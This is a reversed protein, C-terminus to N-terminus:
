LGTRPTSWLRLTVRVSGEGHSIVLEHGRPFHRALRERLNELGIGLSSVTKKADPEIWEGTNEVELILAGDGDRRVGLSVGVRDPSTVRGYKLANELLPLILFHPLHEDELEPDCVIKVELLDGWRSQEIELYARLLKMEGGLTTWDRQEPRYLTLRCFDALREVMTRATTRGAPLAASISALTNFLFHPNLQYRLVELRAKEEALRATIKEDLELQNLRVLEHNQQDLEELNEQLQHTREVVVAELQKNYRRLARMRIQMVGVMVGLSLVSYGIIAWSTAWWESQVVFGLTAPATIIGDADRARVEFRYDGASLNAYIREREPSWSTWSPEFGILRTQYEVVNAFQHRLALFEFKLPPPNPSFREGKKVDKAYLQLRLPVPPPFARAVELRVLGKEGSIWLVIGTPDSEERLSTVAGTAAGILHPLRRSGSGDASVYEIGDERAVWRGGNAAGCEALDRTSNQDNGESIFHGPRAAGDIIGVRYRQGAATVIQLSGDKEERLSIVSQDFGPLLGEDIWGEPTSRLSSIGKTTAVWVREPDLRSHTLIGGGPPVKAISRFAGSEFIQIAEYGVTLLGRDHSMISYTPRSFLRNFRAVQGTEDIPSLRYIGETTAAFLVGGHRVTAVVEGQGLGNDGDFLTAASPWELRFLGTETGLWLGGERDTFFARVTKVYLGLSNDIPGIYHGRADFRMGGDGTPASFAVVLSDDVLRQACIIRRGELWRNAEIELPIIRGSNMRFFGQEATLFELTGDQRGEVMMIVNDRLVPDDMVVEVRDGTMRGLPHDLASVYVEDGVRHFRAGRSHLPTAFPVVIMREDRWILIHNETSFYVDESVALVDYIDEFDPDDSPLHSALSVFEKEGGSSRIWGIVGAGGAYITGSTTVAFKRIGASEDPLPVLSWTSGDYFSMASSSAIFIFGEADQTVAPCLHAIQSRGPPFDRYIPHGLENASTQYGSGVMGLMVTLGIVGCRSGRYLKGIVVPNM